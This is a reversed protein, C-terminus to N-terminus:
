IDGKWGCLPKLGCERSLSEGCATISSLLAHVTESVYMSHMGISSLVPASNSHQGGVATVDYKVFELSGIM